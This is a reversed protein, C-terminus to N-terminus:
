CKARLRTELKELARVTQAFHVAFRGGKRDRLGRYFRLWEGLEEVPFSGTWLGRGLHVFRGDDSLRVEPAPSMTVVAVGAGLVGCRGRM